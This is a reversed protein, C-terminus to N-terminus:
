GVSVNKGINVSACMGGPLSHNTYITTRDGISSFHGIRIPHLEGRLVAGYWVSAYKSVYVSGVLTANPAIWADKVDPIMDYIPMIKRHRSMNMSVIHAVDNNMRSGIRDMNLGAEKLVRGTNYSARTICNNIITSVKM